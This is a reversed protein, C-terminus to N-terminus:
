IPLIVGNRVPANAVTWMAITMTVPSGDDDRQNSLLYTAISMAPTGPEQRRAPVSNTISYSQCYCKCPM